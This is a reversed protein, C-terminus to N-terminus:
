PLMRGQLGSEVSCLGQLGLQRAREAWTMVLLDRCVHVSLDAGGFQVARRDGAVPVRLHHIIGVSVGNRSDEEILLFLAVYEPPWPCDCPM